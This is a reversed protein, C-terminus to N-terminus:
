ATSSLARQREQIADMGFWSSAMKNHEERQAPDGKKTSGTNAISRLFESTVGGLKPRNFLGKLQAMEESNQRGTAAYFHLAAGMPFTAAQAGWFGGNEDFYHPACAVINAAPPHPNMWEPIDPLKLWGPMSPAQDPRAALTVTRYSTWTASYLIICAVWYQMSLNFFGHGHNKCVDRLTQPGAISQSNEAQCALLVSQEWGRLAEGVRICRTIHNQGETLTAYREDNTQPSVLRPSLRDQSQLLDPLTIMIDCLKDHLNRPSTEFPITYWAISTFFNPKRLTIGAIVASSRADEFLSHGHHSVHKAPGRLEVIRCTGEVHKQWDQGQTSIRVSRDM